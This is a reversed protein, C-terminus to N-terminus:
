TKVFAQLLAEFVEGALGGWGTRSTVFMPLGFHFGPLLVGAAKNPKNKM